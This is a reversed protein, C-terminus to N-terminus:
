EREWWMVAWLTMRKYDFVFRGNRPVLHECLYQRLNKTGGASVNGIFGSYYALADDPSEFSEQRLDKIFSLRAYIGMQHLLNYTYIYDPGPVLQKGAAAYIRRDHPGDGVITSIYVRERAVSSLKTIAQRLDDMVLCRSAIVVDFEGIKRSEWDDDWSLHMAKVNELGQVRCQENLVELMKPSYDAATVRRVRRALPITLAGSGCGMDFVSWCRKPEMIKVFDGPYNSAWSNRSFHRAKEDWFIVDRKPVNKKSRQAKWLVNWDIATNAM